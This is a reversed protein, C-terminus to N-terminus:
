GKNLSGIMGGKQSREVRFISRNRGAVRQYRFEDVGYLALYIGLGGPSREQPRCKPLSQPLAQAPDYNVGTDELYITLYRENLDADVHLTGTGSQDQYGHLIINTAIEDVALRLFYARRRDLQAQRAAQLVFAAIQQLSDLKGPVTLSKM